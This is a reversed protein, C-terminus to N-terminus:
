NLVSPAVSTSPATESAPGAVQARFLEWPVVKAATLARRMTKSPHTLVAEILALSADYNYYYVTCDERNSHRGQVQKTEVWPHGEKFGLRSAETGIKQKTCGFGVLFALESATARNSPNYRSLIWARADRPPAPDAPPTPAEGFNFPDGAPATPTAKPADPITPPTTPQAGLRAGHVVSGLSPRAAPPTTPLSEPLVPAAPPAEVARAARDELYIPEGLAVEAAKHALRRHEQPTLEKALRRATILGTIFRAQEVRVQGLQLQERATLPADAAVTAAVPVVPTVTPAAAAAPAAVLERPTAEAADLYARVRAVAASSNRSYKLVREVQERVLFWQDNDALANSVRRAIVRHVNRPRAYDLLAGLGTSALGWGYATDRFEVVPGAGVQIQMSPTGDRTVRVVDAAM